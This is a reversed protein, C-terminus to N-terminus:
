TGRGKKCNKEKAPRDGGQAKGLFLSVFRKEKMDGGFLPLVGGGKEKEIRFSYFLRKKSGQEFCADAIKGGGGKLTGGM